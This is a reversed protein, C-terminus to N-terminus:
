EKKSADILPAPDIPQGEVVASLFREGFQALWRLQGIRERLFAGRQKDAARAVVEAAYAFVEAAERVMQLERERLVRTVMKWISTECEFYDRREGPRWTKKAVGWRVLEALTMSVAGASMSLRDAIEAAPLAEPSLFLLTWIRGMPRKFAWFEMLGGVADAVKLEARRVEAEDAKAM